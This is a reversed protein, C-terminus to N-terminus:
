AVPGEEKNRRADTCSLEVLSPKTQYSREVDYLRGAYRVLTEGAYDETHVEFVATLKKGVAACHFYVAKGRRVPSIPVCYPTGDTDSLALVAYPARDVVDWAFAESRECQKKIM